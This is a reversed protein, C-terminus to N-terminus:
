DRNSPIGGASKIRSSCDSSDESESVDWLHGVLELLCVMIVWNMVSLGILLLPLVKAVRLVETWTQIGCYMVLMTAASFMAVFFLHKVDQPLVPLAGWRRLLMLHVYVILAMSTLPITLSVSGQISWQIYGSLLISCPQSLGLWWSPKVISMSYLYGSEISHRNFNSLNGGEVWDM